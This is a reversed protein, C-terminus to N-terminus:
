KLKVCIFAKTRIALGNGFVGKGRGQEDVVDDACAALKAFRQFGVGGDVSVCLGRQLLRCRPSQM